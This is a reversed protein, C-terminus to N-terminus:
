NTSTAMSTILRALPSVVSPLFRFNRHCASYGSALLSYDVFRLEGRFRSAPVALHPIAHGSTHLLFSM